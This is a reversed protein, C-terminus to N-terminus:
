LFIDSKDFSDIFSTGSPVPKFDPNNESFSQLPKGVFHGFIESSHDNGSFNNNKSSDVNASSDNNKSENESSVENQLLQAQFDHMNHFNRVKLDENHNTPEASEASHCKASSDPHYLRSCHKSDLSHVSCQIFPKGKNEKGMNLRGVDNSDLQKNHHDHATRMLVSLPSKKNPDFKMSQLHRCTMANNNQLLLVLSDPPARERVHNRLCKGGVSEAVNNKNEGYRPCKRFNNFLVQTVHPADEVSMNEFKLIKQALQMDDMDHIWGNDDNGPSLHQELKVAATLHHFLQNVHKSHIESCFMRKNNAMITWHSPDISLLHQAVDMAMTSGQTTIVSSLFEFFSDLFKTSTEAKAAKELLTKVKENM